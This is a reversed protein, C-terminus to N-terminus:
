SKTLQDCGQIYALLEKSFASYVQIKEYDIKVNNLYQLELKDGRDAGPIIGAFFFGLSEFKETM